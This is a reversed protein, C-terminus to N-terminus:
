GVGLVVAELCGGDAGRHAAGAVFGAGGDGGFRRGLGQAARARSVVARAEESM